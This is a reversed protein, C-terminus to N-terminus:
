RHCIPAAAPGQMGGIGAEAISPAAVTLAFVLAILVAALGRGGIEGLLGPRAAPRNLLLGLRAPVAHGALGALAPGAQADDRAAKCIVSALALPNGTREVAYEDADRELHFHLQAMAEASGPLVRAAAFLVRGTVALYPHRRVIHGREHELGAVLEDEDLTALAGTSVVVSAGRIGAAAVVVEPGGIIVSQHPGAGLASRSLWRRVTRGARWIAFLASIVSIGIALGPVLAAADGLRHGSFGLHTAFFPVIAHVCWHTVVQFFQTAPVYLVITMAVLFVLMARLALVSLWVAVGTMPSLSSRPLLHPAIAAAVLAAVLLLTM